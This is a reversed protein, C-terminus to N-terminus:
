SRAHMAHKLENAVEPLRHPDISKLATGKAYQKDRILDDVEKKVADQAAQVSKEGGCKGGAEEYAQLAALTLRSAKGDSKLGVIHQLERIAAETAHSLTGTKDGLLGANKLSTQIPFDKELKHSSGKGAVITGDAAERRPGSLDTVTPMGLETRAHNRIELTTNGAGVVKLNPNKLQAKAIALSGEKGIKIGSLDLDTVTPPLNDVVDKVGKDGLKNYGLKLSKVSPPLAKTMALAGDNGIENNSLDVESIKPLLGMGFKSALAKAGDDTIGCGEARIATTGPLIGHVVEKFGENGIGTNCLDLSVPADRDLKSLKEALAHASEPSIHTGNLYFMATDAPSKELLQKLQADTLPQLGTSLRKLQDDYDIEKAEEQGDADIHIQTIGM